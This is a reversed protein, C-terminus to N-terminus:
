HSDVPELDTEYCSFFPFHPDNNDINEPNVPEIIFVKKGQYVNEEIIQGEIGSKKDKVRDWLKM